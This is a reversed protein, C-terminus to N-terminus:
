RLDLGLHTLSYTLSYTSLFNFNLYEIVRDDKVCISGM